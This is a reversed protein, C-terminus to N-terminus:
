GSMYGTHETLNWVPGVPTNVWYRLLPLHNNMACLRQKVYTVNYLLCRPTPKFFNLVTIYIGHIWVKRPNGLALSRDKQVTVSNISYGGVVGVRYVSDHILTLIGMLNLIRELGSLCVLFM